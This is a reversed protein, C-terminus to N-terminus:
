GRRDPQRDGCAYAPSRMVGMGALGCLLLLLTGPIPIQTGPDGSVSFSLNGTTERTWSDLDAARYFSDGEANDGVADGLLWYWVAKTDDLDFRNVVSLYWNTTGELLVPTALALDYRYVKAGLVDFIKAFERTPAQTITVRPIVKPRGSGDDASISVSFADAASPAPDFLYSGWWTLGTVATSAALLFGDASQEASISAFADNGNRPWQTYLDVPDVAAAASVLSFALVLPVAARVISSQVGLFRGRVFAKKWEVKKM